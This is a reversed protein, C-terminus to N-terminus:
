KLDSVEELSYFEQQSNRMECIAFLPREPFGSEDLLVVVSTKISHYPCLGGFVDKLDNGRINTYFNFSSQPDLIIVPYQSLTEFIKEPQIKPNIAKYFLNAKTFLVRLLESSTGACNVCLSEELACSQAGCQKFCPDPRSAQCTLNIGLSITGSPTTHYASHIEQASAGSATFLGCLFFQGLLKM